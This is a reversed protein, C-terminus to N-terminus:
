AVGRGALRHGTGRRRRSERRSNLHELQDRLREHVRDIAEYMGAASTAAAVTRGGVDLLARAIVPRGRAPEPAATLTVRAFLVPDHVHRAAHAVREQAHYRQRRDVEGRVVVHVDQAHLM